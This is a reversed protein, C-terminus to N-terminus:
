KYSVFDYDPFSEKIFKIKPSLMLVFVIVLIILTVLLFVLLIINGRLDVNLEQSLHGGLFIGGVVALLIFAAQMGTALMRRKSKAKLDFTQPDVNFFYFVEESIVLNPIKLSALNMLISNSVDWGRKFKTIEGVPILTRESRKKNVIEISLNKTNNKYGNNYFSIVINANNKSALVIDNWLVQRGSVGGSIDNYQTFYMGTSNITYYVDEKKLKLDKWYKKHLLFNLYLLIGLFLLCIFLQSELVFLAPLAIAGFAFFIFVPMLRLYRKKTSTKLETESVNCPTLHHYDIMKLNDKM